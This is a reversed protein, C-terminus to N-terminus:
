EPLTASVWVSQVDDHDDLADILQVLKEANEGELAMPNLPNWVMQTRTPSGFKAELASSVAHLSSPSCTITHGTETDWSTDDAGADIAAELMDNEDAVSSPFTIVGLREFQCTASGTTGLAGGRKTFLSRVDSATRNRNNTMAEVIVAIGGSAYGEYRVEEYDDGATSTAAKQIAGEIKDKPMNEARAAQVAARLRPNEDPNFSGNKAAVTIERSLRSFIKGRAADQRGKRHMINKFQSHGAM